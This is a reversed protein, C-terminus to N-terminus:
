IQILRGDEYRDYLDMELYLKGFPANTYLRDVWATKVRTFVPMQEKRPVSVLEAGIAAEAYAGFMDEEGRELPVGPSVVHM